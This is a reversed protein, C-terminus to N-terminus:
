RIACQELDRLRHETKLTMREGVVPMTLGAAGARPDAAGSKPATRGAVGGEVAAAKVFVEAESRTPDFFSISM